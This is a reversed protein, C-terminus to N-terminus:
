VQAQMPYAFLPPVFERDEVLLDGFQSQPATAGFSYFGRPVECSFVGNAGDHEQRLGRASLLYMKALARMSEPLLDLEVKVKPASTLRLLPVLDGSITQDSVQRRQPTKNGNALLKRVASALVEGDVDWTQGIDGQVGCFGSMATLLAETFRSVKGEVAFALKGEGTAAILSKSKIVVPRKIDVFKLANPNAGLSLAIDTSMERCADIFVYLAGKVDREIARLTNSIDFAREWPMAKSRGFDEALLYHDTVMVGHGCFYFVGVNGDDSTVRSLWLEFADQINDRTARELTVSGTPTMVNVPAVASALAEVSGLAVPGNMFGIAGPAVLPALFWDM